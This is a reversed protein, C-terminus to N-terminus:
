LWVVMEKRELRFASCDEKAREIIEKVQKNRLRSYCHTVTVGTSKDIVTLMFRRKFM